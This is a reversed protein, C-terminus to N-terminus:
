FSMMFINQSFRKSFPFKLTPHENILQSILSLVSLMRFELQEPQQDHRTAISLRELQNCLTNYYSALRKLVEEGCLFDLSSGRKVLRVSMNVLPELDKPQAHRIHTELTIRIEALDDSIKGDWEDVRQQLQCVTAEM